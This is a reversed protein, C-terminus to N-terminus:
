LSGGTVFFYMGNGGEKPADPNNFIKKTIKAYGGYGITELGM